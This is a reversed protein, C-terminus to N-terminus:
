SVLWTKRYLWRSQHPGSARRTLRQRASRQKFKTKNMGTRTFAM